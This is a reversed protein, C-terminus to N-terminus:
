RPIRISFRSGQGPNSKVEIEWGHRKAIRGCIALGIGTGPFEGRRHLRRFVEFIQQYHKEEIGIGNDEVSVVWHKQDTSVSIHVQPKNRNYKISNGILNTLLQSAQVPDAKIVPLEDRSVEADSDAISAQLLEISDQFIENLSIEQFEAARTEVRTYALLDDIMVQMRKAGGVIRDIYEKAKADLSESYDIKLFQAFGAISRLPTQLDHSAVYTFQELEINSDQLLQNADALAHNVRQLEQEFKVQETIDVHVGTMRLPQGDSDFNAKGQALFSRYSGDKCQLRFKSIYENQTRDFYANVAEIAKDHDDPHLRREWEAFSNWDVDSPHGLQTKFTPSYYVKSTQPNWDWLGVNAGTLALELQERTAELDATQERVVSRLQDRMEAQEAELTQRKSIDRLCALFEFGDRIQLGVISVEVPFENGGRNLARLELRKDLTTGDDSKSYKALGNRHALRFREPVILEELLEGKAEVASWGFTVEAQRNWGTIRGDGDYTIVADLASEAILRLSQQSSQRDGASADLLHQLEGCRIRLTPVRDSM